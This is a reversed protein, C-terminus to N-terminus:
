KRRKKNKYKKFLKRNFEHEAIELTLIKKLPLIKSVKDHFNTKVEYRQKAINRIKELINKSDKESLKDVGGNEIVQKRINYREERHLQMMKKNYKNYIPWFKEAENSTLNLKETLFSIKYARIKERGKKHQANVTSTYIGLAFVFLLIKKM